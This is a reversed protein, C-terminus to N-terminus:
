RWRRLSIFHKETLERIVKNGKAVEADFAKCDKCPVCRFTVFLPKGTKKAETVAKQFDNYIWQDQGRAHEDNLRDMLLPVAARLPSALFCLGLIIAKM